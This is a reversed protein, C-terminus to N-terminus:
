YRNADLKNLGIVYREKWARYALRSGGM